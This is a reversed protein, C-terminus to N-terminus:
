ELMKMFATFARVPMLDQQTTLETKLQAKQDETLSNLVAGGTSFLTLNVFDVGGGITGANIGSVEAASKGSDPKNIDFIVGVLLGVSVSLGEAAADFSYRLGTFPVEGLEDINVGRTVTFSPALLGMDVSAEVGIGASISLLLAANGNDDWAFGIEVSGGAVIKVGAGLLMVTYIDRGDPDIYKVPNNGAYHYTHLNVTNFIGGMGPLNQNYKRAEDNLPAQPIYEGMAPDTSLWMGTQPNLYRAGYYYLGTESDREKGTFRFPTAEVNPAHEVWLEGYPTYEIHEYV